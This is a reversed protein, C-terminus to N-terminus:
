APTWGMDERGDPLAKGWSPSSGPSERYPTATPM